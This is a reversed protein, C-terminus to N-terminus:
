WSITFTARKNDGTDSYHGLNNVELTFGYHNFFRLFDKGSSGNLKFEDYVTPTYSNGTLEIILELVVSDKGAGSADIIKDAVDKVFSEHKTKFLDIWNNDSRYRTYEADIM